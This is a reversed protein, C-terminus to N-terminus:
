KPKAPALMPALEQSLGFTTWEQLSLKRGALRLAHTLLADLNLDTRRLRHASDRSFLFRSSRDFFIEEIKISGGDEGPDGHVAVSFGGPQGARADLPYLRLRGDETGTAAFRHDPSFAVASVERTHGGLPGVLRWGNSDRVWLLPDKTDLLFPLALAWCGDQSLAKLLYSEPLPLQRQTVQGGQVEVIQVANESERRLAIWQSLAEPYEPFRGPFRHVTRDVQLSSGSSHVVRVQATRPHTASLQTVVLLRGDRSFRTETPAPVEQSLTRRPPQGPAEPLEWLEIVGDHQVRDRLVGDDLTGDDKVWLVALLRGSPHFAASLFRPAPGSAPLDAPVPWLRPPGDGLRWLYTRPSPGESLLFWRDSPDFREIVPSESTEFRYIPGSSPGALDFLDVVVSEERYSLSAIWRGSSSTAVSFVEPKTTRLRRNLRPRDQATLSWVQVEGSSTGKVYIRGDASAVSSELPPGQRLDILESDDPRTLALDWKRFSGDASTSVLWHGDDSSVASTVVGEFGRFRWALLGFGQGELPWGEIENNEKVALLRNADRSFLLNRVAAVRGARRQLGAESATPDWRFVEGETTAGLIASASGPAPMLHDAGGPIEEAALQRGCSGPGIKWARLAPPAASLGAYLIEESSSFALSEINSFRIQDVTCPKDALAKLDWLQILDTGAAALWRGSPSIKLRSVLHASLDLSRHCGRSSGGALQVMCLKDEARPFFLWTDTPDFAADVPASREGAWEGLQRPTTESWQWLLWGSPARLDQQRVLRALFYGGRPSFRIRGIALRFRALRTPPHCAFPEGVRVRELSGSARGLVLWHGDHSFALSTFAEDPRRSLWGCVPQPGGSLRWLRVAGREDKAALLRSDPSITVSSVRSGGTDLPEGSVGQLAFYLAEQAAPTVREGAQRTERVAATALLLSLGPKDGRVRGSEAALRGAEARRTERRAADRAQVARWATFGAIVTSLALLWAAVTAIALRLKQQRVRKFNLRLSRVLEPSPTGAALQEPGDQLKLVDGSLYDFLRSSTLQPDLSGGFDIAFIRRGTEAFLRVERLVPKSTLAGPSGVLVLYSTRRLTWAGIKKWDDGAVYDERDLFCEFGMTELARSLAAAYAQGDTWRYSIFFDYGFILDALRLRLTRWSLSSTPV